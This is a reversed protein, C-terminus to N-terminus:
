RQVHPAAWPSLGQVGVEISPKPALWDPQAGAMASM